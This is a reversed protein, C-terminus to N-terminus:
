KHLYRLCAPVIGDIGLIEVAAGIDKAAKPMGYVVSTAEDQAITHWGAERLQKLGEAGDNGMGTLLVGIGKGRWHQRASTFFVDVSPRFPTDKPNPTYHFTQQPTLVLHDNTSSLFVKGGELPQNEKAIEVPLTSQENLWESLGQAFQADVHQIVVTPCNFDPPLQSLIQAVAKPGGTSAGIALLPPVSRFPSPSKNILKRITAIKDLLTRDQLSPTDIVDLAGHGMAAFIRDSHEKVGSTVILIACPSNKMIRETAAVGDMRPMILNMLILDPTDELAKAVAEEGNSAVWALQYEPHSTILRRLLEVEIMTDNVVAIRMAGRGSQFKFKQPM